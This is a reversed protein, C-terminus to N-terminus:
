RFALQRILGLRQDLQEESSATVWVHAIASNPKFELLTELSFPSPDNASDRKYWQVTVGGVIGSGALNASSPVFSPHYGFYIGFADKKTAADIAYCVGFDPGQQYQWSLGSNAPLTPCRDTTQASASVISVFFTLAALVKM